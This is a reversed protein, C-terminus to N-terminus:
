TQVATILAPKSTHIPPAASIWFCPTRLLFGVAVVGANQTGAALQDHLSNEFRLGIRNELKPSVAPALISRLSISERIATTLFPYTPCRLSTNLPVRRVHAKRYYTM